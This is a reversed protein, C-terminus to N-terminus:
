CGECQVYTRASGTRLKVSASFFDWQKPDIRDGLRIRRATATGAHPSVNTSSPSHPEQHHPHADFVSAKRSHDGCQQEKHSRWTTQLESARHRRRPGTKRQRRVRVGTERSFSCRIQVARPPCLEPERGAQGPIAHHISVRCPHHEGTSESPPGNPILDKYLPLPDDSRM